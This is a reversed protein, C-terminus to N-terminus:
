KKFVQSILNDVLVEIEKDDNEKGWVVPLPFSSINGMRQLLVAISHLFPLFKSNSLFLHGTSPSTFAVLLSTLPVYFGALHDMSTDKSSPVLSSSSLSFSSSSSSTSSTSPLTSTPTLGNLIYKSPTFSILNNFLTHLFKFLNVVSVSPVTILSPLICMFSAINRELIKWSILSLISESLLCSSSSPLSSSSIRAALEFLMGMCAQSTVVSSRIGHQKGKEKGVFLKWFLGRRNRFEAENLQTKTIENKTVLDSSPFASNSVSTVQTNNSAISSFFTLPHSSLSNLSISLIRLVASYLLLFDDNKVSSSFIIEDNKGVLGYTSIFVLPEFLYFLAYCRIQRPSLWLSSATIPPFYASIYAFLSPSPNSSSSISSWTPIMSASLPLIISHISSRPIPLRRPSLLHSILSITNTFSPVTNSAFAQSLKSKKISSPLSSPETKPSDQYLDILEFDNYENNSDDEKENPNKILEERESESEETIEEERLSIGQKMKIEWKSIVDVYRLIEEDEECMEENYLYDGKNIGANNDKSIDDNINDSGGGSTHVVGDEEIDDKERIHM